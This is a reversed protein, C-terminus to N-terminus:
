QQTNTITIMDQADLQPDLHSKNIKPVRKVKKCTIKKVNNLAQLADMEAGTEKQIFMCYEKLQVYRTLVMHM